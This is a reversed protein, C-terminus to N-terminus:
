RRSSWRRASSRLGGVSFRRIGVECIVSNCHCALSVVILPGLVGLLAVSAATTAVRLLAIRRLLVATATVVLARRHLVLLAWGLLDNHPFLLIPAAQGCTECSEATTEDRFLSTFTAGVATFTARVATLRTVADLVAAASFPATIHVHSIRSRKSRRTRLEAPPLSCM